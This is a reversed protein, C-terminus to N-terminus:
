PGTHPYWGCAMYRKEVKWGKICEPGRWPNSSDYGFTCDHMFPVVSGDYWSLFTDGFLVIEAEYICNDGTIYPNPIFGAATEFAHYPPVTYMASARLQLWEVHSDGYLLNAGGAHHPDKKTPRFLDLNTIPSTMGCVFGTTNWNLEEGVLGALLPWTTTCAEKHVRWNDWSTNPLGFQGDADPGALGSGIDFL